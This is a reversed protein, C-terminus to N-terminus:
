SYLDVNRLHDFYELTLKIGEDLSVIPQYKLVSKAKECSYTHHTSILAVRMPTFTPEWKKVRSILQSIFSLLIALYYVLWRPLHRKPNEYGLGTLLRKMFEWFLIPQDNTIHFAQGGVDSNKELALAALILGHSVNKVYTFDVVNNGDGIIFKMKGKRAADALTPVMTTDRPGFIGHPRIAVTLLRGNNVQIAIKNTLWIKTNILRIYNTEAVIYWVRNARLVLQEQAIKTSTYFDVPNTAYPSDEDDGLIDNGEYIVSASYFRLVPFLFSDIPYCDHM